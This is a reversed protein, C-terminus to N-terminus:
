RSLMSVIAKLLNTAEERQDNLDEPADDDGDISLPEEHEADNEVDAWGTEVTVDGLEREGGERDGDNRNRKINQAREMKRKASHIDATLLKKILEWLNPAIDQYRAITDEVSFNKLKEETTKMASFHFGTSKSSLAELEARYSENVMNHAWKRTTDKTTMATSFLQLTDETHEAIFSSAIPHGCLTTDTLIHHLFDHIALNNHQLTALVQEAM